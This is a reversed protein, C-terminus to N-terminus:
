QSKASSAARRSGFLVEGITVHGVVRYGGLSPLLLFHSLALM